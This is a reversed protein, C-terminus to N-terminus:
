VRGKLKVYNWGIILLGAVFLYFPFWRKLRNGYTSLGASSLIILGPIAPMHFRESLAFGSNALVLLYGVSYMIIISTKRFHKQMCWVLGAITFFAYINRITNAGIFMWLINQTEVYVFSPFPAMLIVSLFLPVGALIALKNGGERTARYEMHDSVNGYKYLYQSLEDTVQTHLILLGFAVLVIAISFYNVFRNRVPATILSYLMCSCIMVAALVTRFTFLVFFLVALSLINFLTIKKMLLLRIAVHVTCVVLFIMVTEKLGTGLYLLFNPLLMAGIGAVRAAHEDVVNLTIRYILLVSVASFVTNFLRPIIVEPGFISYIIGLYVNYGRDSFPLDELYEMINFDMLRIQEAIKVAHHHYFKSDVAYYEFPQGTERYYFYYLSVAAIIRILLSCGFLKAEFQLSSTSHWWHFFRNCAVFYLCVVIYGAAVFTGDVLHGHMLLLEAIFTISAFVGIQAVLQKDWFGQTM